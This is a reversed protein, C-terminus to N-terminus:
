SMGPGLDVTPTFFERILALHDVMESFAYVEGGPQNEGTGQHNKAVVPPLSACGPSMKVDQAVCM